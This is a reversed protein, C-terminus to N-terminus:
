IGRYNKCDKTSDKGKYIPLIIGNKWDPSIVGTQWVQKIVSTLWLIGLDGSTKLMEATIGCMGPVHRNVINHSQRDIQGTPHMSLHYDIGSWWLRPISLYSVALGDSQQRITQLMRYQQRCPPSEIETWRDTLATRRAWSVSAAATHMLVAGKPHCIYQSQGTMYYTYYYSSQREYCDLFSRRAEWSVFHM